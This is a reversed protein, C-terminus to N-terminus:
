STEVKIPNARLQELEAMKKKWLRNRPIDGDIMLAIDLLEQMIRNERVLHVYTKMKPRAGRGFGRM